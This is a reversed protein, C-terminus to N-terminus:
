LTAYKNNEIAKGNKKMTNVHQSNYFAGVTQMVRKGKCVPVMVDSRKIPNYQGDVV